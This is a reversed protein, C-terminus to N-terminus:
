RPLIWRAPGCIATTQKTNWGTHGSCRWKNNGVPADFNSIHPPGRNHCAGGLIVQGAPCTAIEGDKEVVTPMVNWACMAIVKKGGGHGRCEYGPTTTHLDIPRCRTVKHPWGELAYGGGIV